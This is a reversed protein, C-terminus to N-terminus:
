VNEQKYRSEPQPITPVPLWGKKYLRDGDGLYGWQWMTGDDCLVWPGDPRNVLQIPKRM